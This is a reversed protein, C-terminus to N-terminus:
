VAKNLKKLFFYKLLVKKLKGSFDSLHWFEWGSSLNVFLLLYKTLQIVNPPETQVGFVPNEWGPPIAAGGGERRWKSHEAGWDSPGMTAVAGGGLKKM